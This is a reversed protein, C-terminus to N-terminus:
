SGYSGSSRFCSAGRCSGIRALGGDGCGRMVFGVGVVVWLREEETKVSAVFVGVALALLGAVGWVSVIRWGVSKFKGM